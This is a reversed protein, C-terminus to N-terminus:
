QFSIRWRPSGAVDENGVEGTGDEMVEFGVGGFVFGKGEVEGLEGVVDAVEREDGGVFGAAEVGFVGGILARRATAWSPCPTEIGTDLGQGAYSSTYVGV